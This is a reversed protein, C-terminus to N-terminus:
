IIQEIDKSIVREQTPLEQRNGGRVKETVIVLKKVDDIVTIHNGAARGQASAAIVPQRRESKVKM